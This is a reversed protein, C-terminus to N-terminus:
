DDDDEDHDVRGRMIFDCGETLNVGIEWSQYEQNRAALTGIEVVNSRRMSKNAWIGLALTAVEEISSAGKAQQMEPMEQAGMVSRNFQHIVMLPMDDSMDRLSNLPQWFERPDCGGLQKGSQTEVYQLQDVIVLDAGADGANEVMEEFTRHGPEPKTVKFTGMGDLLESAENLAKRDPPTIKGYIYKWFPVGAALCVLRMYTEVAPLELSYLHVNKGGMVNALAPNIGWLWSKYTKPPAIGFVVGRIGHFHKDVDAFGFSPGPGRLVTQDYVSIARSFDGTGYTEGRKGVIEQFERGVQVIVGPVTAPDEKYADGIREMYKRSNNKIYRDRLRDILDGIAAEPESIDLDFEEAFVTATAPKGHERVHRYQWLLADKVFSDEILAAGVPEARMVEVSEPIALHLLFDEDLDLAYIVPAETTM